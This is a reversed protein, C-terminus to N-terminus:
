AQSGAETGHNVGRCRACYTNRGFNTLGCVPCKWSSLSFFEKYWDDTKEEIIVDEVKDYVPLPILM